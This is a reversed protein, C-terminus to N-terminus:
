ALSLAYRPAVVAEVPRVLTTDRLRLARGLTEDHRNAGIVVVWIFDSPATKHLSPEQLLSFVVDDDNVLVFSQGPKISSVTTTVHRHRRIAPAQPASAVTTAHM